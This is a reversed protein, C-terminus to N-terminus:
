DKNYKNGHDNLGQIGEEGWCIKDSQNKTEIIAIEESHIVIISLSKVHSSGTYPALKQALANRRLFGDINEALWKEEKLFM